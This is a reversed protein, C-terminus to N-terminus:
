NLAYTFSSCPMALLYPGCAVAASYAGVSLGAVAEPAIGEDQLARVTAVSAVLLSLQVAVTSELADAQDLSLVDVHLVDCAEEITEAFRADPTAGGLTHFFGAFQSGQGPFLFAIMSSSEDAM